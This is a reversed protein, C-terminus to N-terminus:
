KEKEEILKNELSERAKKPASKLGFLKRVGEMYLGVTPSVLPSMATLIATGRQVKDFDIKVKGELLNSFLSGASLVTAYLPVQFSDFALLEVLYKRFNSSEDTTKTKKYLFNRWKGYPAGTPINIATGYTRAAVIGMGRLGAAYDTIAGALLSYSVLGITDVISEKTKSPKIESM